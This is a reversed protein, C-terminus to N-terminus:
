ISKGTEINEDKEDKQTLVKIAEKAGEDDLLSRQVRGSQYHYAGVIYSELLSTIDDHNLKLDEELNVELKKEISALEDEIKSYYREQKLTEKFKDLYYDTASKADFKKDKLYIAFDDIDNQTLVFNEASPAVRNKKYYEKVFGRIYDKRLLNYTFKTMNTSELKIDPTIGGGDYVKRGGKTAFEKRLSDPIAGVSGDENRDSFDVAQICRGSPIYYKATTIKLVGGNGVSQTSQVLGKGFTRYGVITARDLDQLAGAVIESASASSSNVLVVLPLDKAIPASNTYYIKPEKYMRGDVRLVETGKDVFLSLISIAEQMIGGGNNRLDLVLSKLEGGEQLEILAERVEKSTSESFNDVGIYGVGAAKDAFGYYPVAPILVRERKIDVEKVEDTLLSIYKLRFTTGAVGRLADSVQQSTSNKLEVGDISIIKDGLVIGAKHAPFGEYVEEIEVYEADARKSIMAGVGAYQGSTHVEFEEYESKPMYTTYPDLNGLMANAADTVLKESDVEDVYMINTHKFINFFVELSKGRMFDKDNSAAALMFVGLSLGVGLLLGQVRKNM